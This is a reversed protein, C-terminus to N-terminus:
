KAKNSGPTEQKPQPKPTAEAESQPEMRRRSLAKPGAVNVPIGLQKVQELFQERKDLLGAEEFQRICTKKFEEFSMGKAKQIAVLTKSDKPEKM